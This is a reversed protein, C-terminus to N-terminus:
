DKLVYGGRVVEVTIPKGKIDKLVCEVIDVNGSTAIDKLVIDVVKCDKIIPKGGPGVIIDITNGSWLSIVNEDDTYTISDNVITAGDITVHLTYVPPVGKTRINFTVTGGTVIQKRNYLYVATPPLVYVSFDCSDSIIDEGNQYRTQIYIAHGGDDICNERISTMKTWQSWYRNDISYRFESYVSNGSVDICLTDSDLVGNDPINTNVITITPQVYNDGKTDLPNDRVVCNTLCLIILLLVIKTEKVIQIM